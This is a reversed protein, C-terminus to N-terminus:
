GIEVKGAVQLYEITPPLLKYDLTNKECYIILYKLKPPLVTLKQPDDYYMCLYRLEPLSLINHDVYRFNHPLKLYKLSKPLVDKLFPKNYEPVGTFELRKLTIPLAGVQFQKNFNGKFVLETLGHPLTHPKVEKNYYVGFEVRKLTTPLTRKKFSRNYFAGFKLSTLAPPLVHQKIEEDFYCGLELTELSTPFVSDNIQNFQDMFTLECLRSPLINVGFVQNFRNGFHLETLSDPLVRSIVNNNDDLITDAFPLDYEHGFTLEELCCCTM